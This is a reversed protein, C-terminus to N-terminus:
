QSLIASNTSLFRCLLLQLMPLSSKASTTRSYPNQLIKPHTEMVRLLLNDLYDELEKVRQRQLLAENEMGNAILMLEERSKGEYKKALAASIESRREAHSTSKEHGIIIRENAKPSPTSRNDESKERKNLYKFKGLRRERKESVIESPSQEPTSSYPSQEDELSTSRKAFNLIRQDEERRKAERRKEEERQRMEEQLAEEEERLRQENRRLEEELRADEAARKREEREAAERRNREVEAAITAAEFEAQRQRKTQAQAAATAEADAAAKAAASTEAEAAAKAQAEAQRKLELEREREEEARKLEAERERNRPMAKPVPPVQSEAQIFSQTHWKKDTDLDFLHSKNRQEFKAFSANLENFDKTEEDPSLLSLNQTATVPKPNIILEQPRKAVVEKVETKIPEAMVQKEEAESESSSLSSDSESHVKTSNVNSFGNAPKVVSQEDKKEAVKNADDSASLRQEPVENPTPLPVRSQEWSRRKLSDTSGIQLNQKYLKSEWEDLAPEKQKPSSAIMDNLQQQTRPPKSPPPLTRARVSFDNELEELEPDVALDEEVLDRRSSLKGGVKNLLPSPNRPAFNQTPPQLSSRINLSSASSKHSLNDFVFEDEDESIVGPDAEGARQGYRRSGGNSSNPTGISAFSGSFNSVDDGDKNKKKSSLHMKSGISKAFKKIGKRKEITGISLLSGGVSSALQGISSKHKEKKSLDTLSGSKVIFSIRAELEGREKNKKEKGPKSELKFWKSRPRDYVDMENLPLTAQGLFEDIGLNNRHLCTLVLEARNGQDPIKLECEENWSVNMEAKEKVSTQYKEKGLSITVFCNNTGNKGKTLLGKARQVTVQIHTPSWM